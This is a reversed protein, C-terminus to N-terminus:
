EKNIIFKKIFGHIYNSGRGVLIGTLVPDVVAFTGTGGLLSFLGLQFNLAIGVGLLASLTNLIATRIKDSCTTLNLLPVPIFEIVGEGVAAALVVLAILQVLEM